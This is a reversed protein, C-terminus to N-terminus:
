QAHPKDERPWEMGLIEYSKRLSRTSARHHKLLAELGGYGSILAIGTPDQHAVKDAGLAFADFEPTGWLADAREGMRTFYVIAAKARLPHQSLLQFIVDLVFLVREVVSLRVDAIEGRGRFAAFLDDTITRVLHAAAQAESMLRRLELDPGDPGCHAALYARYKARHYRWDRRLGTPDDPDLRQVAARLRELQAPTFAPVDPRRSFEEIWAEPLSIARGILMGQSMDKREAALGATFDIWAALREVATDYRGSDAHRAADAGLVHLALRVNSTFSKRPDDEDLTTAVPVDLQYVPGRLRAAAIFSEIWPQHVELLARAEALTCRGQEHVALVRPSFQFERACRRLEPDVDQFLAYLRGAPNSSQDSVDVTLVPSGLADREAVPADAVPKDHPPASVFLASLFWATRMPAPQM